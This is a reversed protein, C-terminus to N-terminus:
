FLDDIKNKAEKEEKEYQKIFAEANNELDKPLAALLEAYCAALDNNNESEWKERRLRLVTELDEASPGRKVKRTVIHYLHYKYMSKIGEVGEEEGAFSHWLWNNIQIGREAILVDREREIKESKIEDLLRDCLNEMERIKLDRYHIPSIKILKEFESFYEDVDLKPKIETKKVTGNEATMVTTQSFEWYSFNYNFDEDVLANCGYFLVIDEWELWDSFFGGCEIEWLEFVAVYGDGNEEVDVLTIGESTEDPDDESWHESEKEKEYALRKGKLAADNMGEEDLLDHLAIILCDKGNEAKIKKKITDIDDGEVIVNGTGANRIAANLIRIMVDKGGSLYTYTCYQIQSM